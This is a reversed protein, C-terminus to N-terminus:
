HRYGEEAIRELEQEQNIIPAEKQQGTKQALDHSVDSAVIIKKKQGNRSLYKEVRPMYETFFFERQADPTMAATLLGRVILGRNKREFIVGHKKRIEGIISEVHKYGMPYNVFDLIETLSEDEFLYEDIRYRQIGTIKALQKHAKFNPKLDEEIHFISHCIQAVRKQLYVDPVMGMLKLEKNTLGLEKKKKNFWNMCLKETMVATGESVMSHTLIMFGEPGYNMGKPMAKESINQAVGHGLLEHIITLYLMGKFIKTSIKDKYFYIDSESIGLEKTGSRWFGQFDYTIPAISLDYTFSKDYLGISKLYDELHPKITQLCEEARAVNKETNRELTFTEVGDLIRDHQHQLDHRFNGLRGVLSQYVASTEKTGYLAALLEQISTRRSKPQEKEPELFAYYTKLACATREIDSKVIRDFNNTPRVKEIRQAIEQMLDQIAGYTTRSAVLSVIQSEYIDVLGALKVRANNIRGLEKSRIEWRLEKDLDEYM